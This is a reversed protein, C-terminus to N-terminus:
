HGEPSRGSQECMFNILTNLVFPLLALRTTTGQVSAANTQHIAQRRGGDLRLVPVPLGTREPHTTGVIGM